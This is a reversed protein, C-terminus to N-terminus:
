GGTPPESKGERRAQDEEMVSKAWAVNSLDERLDAYEAKFFSALFRVVTESDPPLAEEPEVFANSDAVLHGLLLWYSCQPLELELPQEECM